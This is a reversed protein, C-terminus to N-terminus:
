ASRRRLRKLGYAVGGALLLSAGGDLPVATPPPPTTPEPGGAGPGQAQTTLSSLLVLAAARCLTAFSKMRFNNPFSSNSYRAQSRATTLGTKM